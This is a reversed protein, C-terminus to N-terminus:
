CSALPTKVVTPRSNIYTSLSYYNAIPIRQKIVKIIAMLMMKRMIMIMITVIILMLIIKMMMEERKKGTVGRILCPVSGPM